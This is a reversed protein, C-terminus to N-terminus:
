PEQDVFKVALDDLFIVPAPFIPTLRYQGNSSFIATSYSGDDNRWIREIVTVREDSM